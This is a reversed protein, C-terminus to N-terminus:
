AGIEEMQELIYIVYITAVILTVGVLFMSVAAAFGFDFLQLGFRYIYVSLVETASGPGGGTLTYPIAYARFAFMWNILGAVFFSPRLYPLTVHRFTQLTTAGDARSADYMHQPIAQLGALLIVTAFPIRSWTDALIIVPMASQAQGLFSYSSQLIGLDLLIKNVVGIEGNFIWKWTVGVVSLPVAWSILILTTYTDRLRKNVVHNLALALVLGVLVSLILSGFSYVFAKEVANWFTPDGAMKAYNHAPAWTKVFAQTQHLSNWVLVLVPYIFILVLVALTPGLFLLRIHKNVFRSIRAQVDGIPSDVGSYDVDTAM